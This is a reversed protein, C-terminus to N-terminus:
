TIHTWGANMVVRGILRIGRVVPDQDRFAFGRTREHLEHFRATLAPLASSDIAEAEPCPVSMDFNQGPYAVQVYFELRTREEPLGAPEILDRRAEARAEQMLARLPAPEARRLPAVYAKVLDIRYDAVLVGLASFAPATRPVLYRSIGLEAAIAWAHVGGNGGYAILTLERPDVGHASLIRRTANAMNANVIRAIGWAAEIVDIGLPKAVEREIAQGAADFDLDLRGGAFGEHPLYGLVADADSVTAPM